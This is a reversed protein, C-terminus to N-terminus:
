IKKGWIWCWGRYTWLGGFEQSWKLLSFFKEVCEEGNPIPAITEMAWFIWLYWDRHTIRRLSGETSMEGYLTSPRVVFVVSGAVVGMLERWLRRINVTLLFAKQSSQHYCLGSQWWEILEPSHRAKTKKSCSKHSWLQRIVGIHGWIQSRTALQLIILSIGFWWGIGCTYM